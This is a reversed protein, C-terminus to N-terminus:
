AEVSVIRVATVVDGRAGWCMWAAFNRAETEVRSWGPQDAVAIRVYHTRIQWPRVGRDVAVDVELDFILM